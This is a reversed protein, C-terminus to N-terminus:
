SLAGSFDSGFDLFCFCSNLKLFGNVRSHWAASFHCAVRYRPEFHWSDMQICVFVRAQELKFIYNNFQLQLVENGFNICFQEFSNTEFVEFGFIDLLSIRQKIRVVTDAVVARANAEIECNSAADLRRV